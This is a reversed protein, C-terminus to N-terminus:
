LAVHSCYKENDFWTKSDYVDSLRIAGECGFCRTSPQAVEEAQWDKVLQRRSEKQAESLDEEDPYAHRSAASNVHTSEPASPTDPQPAVPADDDSLSTLSSLPSPPPAM